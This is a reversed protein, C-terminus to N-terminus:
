PGFRAKSPLTSSPGMCCKPDLCSAKSKVMVPVVHTWDNSKSQIVLRRVREQAGTLYSACNWLSKLVSAHCAEPMEKM